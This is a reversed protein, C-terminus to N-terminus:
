KHILSLKGNSCFKEAVTSGMSPITQKNNFFVCNGFRHEVAQCVKDAKCQDSCIQSFFFNYKFCMLHLFIIFTVFVLEGVIFIGNLLALRSPNM